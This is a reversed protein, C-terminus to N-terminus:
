VDIDSNPVETVTVEAASVQRAVSSAVALQRAETATEAALTVEENIAPAKITVSYIM